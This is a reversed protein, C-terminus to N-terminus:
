EHAREIAAGRHSSGTSLHMTRAFSAHHPARDLTHVTNAAVPAHSAGRASHTTTQTGRRTM